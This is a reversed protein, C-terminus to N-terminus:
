NLMQSIREMNTAHVSHAPIVQKDQLAKYLDLINLRRKPRHHLDECATLFTTDDNTLQRNLNSSAIAKDIEIPADDIQQRALTNRVTPDKLPHGIDYFYNGACTVRYHKKKLLMTTIINKLLM